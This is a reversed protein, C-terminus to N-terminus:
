DVFLRDALRWRMTVTAGPRPVSIAAAAVYNASPRHVFFRWRGISRPQGAKDLAITLREPGAALGTGTGKLFAERLVWLTYFRASRKSPPLAALRREEASSLFHRAVQAIDVKRSADEVDVGVAGVRSVLCVVLGATRSVSFRLSRFAAPEAIVPKGHVNTRFGWEAPDVDAYSSLVSRCLARTALYDNRVRRGRLAALKARETKSLWALCRERVDGTFVDDQRLMWAHAAGRLDDWGKKTM